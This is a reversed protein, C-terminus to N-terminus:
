DTCVSLARTPACPPRRTTATCTAGRTWARPDHSSTGCTRWTWLSSPCRCTAVRRPRRRRHHLASTTCMCAMEHTTGHDKRVMIKETGLVAAELEKIANATAARRQVVTHDEEMITSVEWPQLSTIHSYLKALMQEKARRVMCHVVSKPVETQITDLIVRTYENCDQLPPPSPLFVVRAHFYTRSAGKPPHVAAAADQPLPFLRLSLPACFVCSFCVCGGWSSWTPRM